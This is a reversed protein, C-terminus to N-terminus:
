GRRQRSKMQFGKMALTPEKFSLGSLAVIPKSPNNLGGVASDLRARGWIEIHSEPYAGALVQGKAKITKKNDHNYLRSRKQLEGQNNVAVVCVKEKIAM